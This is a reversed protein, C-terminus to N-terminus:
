VLVCHQSKRQKQENIICLDRGDDSFSQSTLFVYFATKKFLRNKELQLNWCFVAVPHQEARTRRPVLRGTRLAPSLGDDGDAGVLVFVLWVAQRQLVVALGVVDAPVAAPPRM